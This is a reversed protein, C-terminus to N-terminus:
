KLLIDNNRAHHPLAGLVAANVGQTILQPRTGEITRVNKTTVTPTPTQIHMRGSPPPKVVREKELKGCM